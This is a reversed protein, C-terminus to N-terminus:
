VTPAPTNISTILAIALQHFGDDDYVGFVRGNPSIAAFDRAPVHYTKGDGTTVSFPEFPIAHLKQKIEALSM